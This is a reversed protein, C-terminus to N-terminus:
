WSQLRLELLTLLANLKPALRRSSPYTAVVELPAPTLELPVPVRTGDAVDDRACCRRALLAFGLGQTAFIRALEGSDVSYRVGVAVRRPRGDPGLFSWPEGEQAALTSICPLAELECVQRPTGSRALLRPSAM